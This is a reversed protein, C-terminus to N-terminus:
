LESANDRIEDWDDVLQQLKQKTASEEETIAGGLTVVDKAIALPTTAVDMATKILSGFFGM